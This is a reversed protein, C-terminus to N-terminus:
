NFKNWLEQTTIELSWNNGIKYPLQYCQKKEALPFTLCKEKDM